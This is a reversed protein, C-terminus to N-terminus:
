KFDQLFNQVFTEMEAHPLPQQPILGSTYGRRRFPELLRANGSIIHVPVSFPEGEATLQQNPQHDGLIIILTDPSVYKALYDGLLKFDYDLSRLYAEGANKLNPWSIPYRVPPLTNYIDGDGISDWDDIYPPQVSFSAHSSVLVYRVFLPQSHKVFERQHVWDLVFQDAMPAWGFTPGRYDFHEAYYAQQYDYAAGEPYIFRTGPMVSVTRYGNQDFFSALPVLTSHLLANYEVNNQVKFGFELTGHALYSIGGFTPSVLYSSVAMFGHQELTKALGDMTAQMAQRYHPRTYVTRGYSEIMFLLVDAEQLGALSVPGDGRQRATEEMRSIMVQQLEHQRYTSRIEQALRFITPTSPPYWNQQFAMSLLLLSGSLFSLRVRKDAALARAATQWAVWSLGLFGFTVTTGSVVMLIVGKTDSSTLLLDFLSFIYASDLYLNFPRNLYMPAVVDGIRLLRLLLFVLWVLATTCTLLRKTRTATLTLLILLLWVDISPQLLQRSLFHDNPYNVHLLASLLAFAALFSLPPPLQPKLFTM